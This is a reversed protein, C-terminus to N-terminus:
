SYMGPYFVNLLASRPNALPPIPIRIKIFVHTKYHCEFSECNECLDYDVCNGCKYRIGRIPSSNCNNCTIGRHVYGEKRAQDEAIAYLLNLLNQSDPNQTTTPQPAADSSPSEPTDEEERQSHIETEQEMSKQPKQNSDSFYRNKVVFLLIASLAGSLFFPLKSHPPSM